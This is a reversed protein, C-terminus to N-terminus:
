KKASVVCSGSSNLELCIV